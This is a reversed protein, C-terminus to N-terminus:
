LRKVRALEIVNQPSKLGREFMVLRDEYISPDCQSEIPDPARFGAYAARDKLEQWRRQLALEHPLAPKAPESYDELWHRDRGFFTQAMKVYGEMGERHIYGAYSKAGDIMREFDYGSKIHNRVLRDVAGWGQNARKPYITKLQDLFDTPLM